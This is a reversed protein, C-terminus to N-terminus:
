FVPDVVIRNKNLYTIIVNIKNGPALDKMIEPSIDAPNIKAHIKNNIVDLYIGHPSIKTITAEITTKAKFYKVATHFEPIFSNDFLSATIKEPKDLNELFFSVPENLKDEGPIIQWPSFQIPFFQYSDIEKIFFGDDTQKLYGTLRNEKKAKNILDSRSNNYLFELEYAIMLDGRGAKKIKFRVVDGTNYQHIKKVLGKTKLEEQLKEDTSGKISKKKGNVEYDILAYKKHPNIFSITGTTTDKM